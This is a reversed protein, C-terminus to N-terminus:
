LTQSAATKKPRQWAMKTEKHSKWAPKLKHRCQLERAAELLDGPL